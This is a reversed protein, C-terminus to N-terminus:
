RRAKPLDWFPRSAERAAAESTLGLDKLQAADMRALARREAAVAWALRLDARWSPTARRAAGGRVSPVLSWPAQDRAGAGSAPASGVHYAFGIKSSM